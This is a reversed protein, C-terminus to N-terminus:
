FTYVGSIRIAVHLILNTYLGAVIDDLMIGKAGGLAEMRDAPPIKFMDFARFLFFGIIMVPGYMPLMFFSIMVGAVEDIVICGPDKRGYSKEAVGSAVFGLVTVAVMVLLYAWFNWRLFWALALGAATALTGPAVPFKGCYFFTAILRAIQVNIM